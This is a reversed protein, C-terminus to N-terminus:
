HPSNKPKTPPKTFILRKFTPEPGFNLIYGIKMHSAKLYNRLQVKHAESIKEASKLELIVKDEVIIDAFYDGVIEGDYYVTV